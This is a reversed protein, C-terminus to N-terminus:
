WGAPLDIYTMTPNLHNYGTTVTQGNKIPTLLAPGHYYGIDHLHMVQSGSIYIEEYNFVGTLLAGNSGATFGTHPVARLEADIIESLRNQYTTIPDTYVIDSDKIYLFAWGSLVNGSSIKPPIKLAHDLGRMAIGNLVTRYTVLHIDESVNLTGTELNVLAPDIMACKLAAIKEAATDYDTLAM